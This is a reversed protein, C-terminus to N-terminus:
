FYANSTNSRNWPHLRLLSHRSVEHLFGLREAHSGFTAVWKLREREAFVFFARLHRQDSAPRSAILSANTPM